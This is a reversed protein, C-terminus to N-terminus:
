YLNKLSRFYFKKIKTKHVPHKFGEKIVNFSEGKELREKIEQRVEDDLINDVNKSELQEWKEHKVIYYGKQDKTERIGYIFGALDLDRKNRVIPTPLIHALGAQITGKLRNEDVNKLRWHKKGEGPYREFYERHEEAFSIAYADLAHHKKNERLKRDYDTTKDAQLAKWDAERGEYLLENLEYKRRFAATEEGNTVFLRRNEGEVQLGWGFYFAMVEQSLRAIYSTEALGTYTDLAKEYSKEDMAVLIKAKKGSLGKQRLSEIRATYGKWDNGKLWEFPTRDKKEQNEERFCVVKNHLADTGGRSVPIIHDVEVAPTFLHADFGIVRGSYPCMEQQEEWLRLKTINFPTLHVGMDELRKKWDQRKKEQAKIFKERELAEQANLGERVFEIM